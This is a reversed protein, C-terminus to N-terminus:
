ILRYRGFGLTTGHGCHTFRGLWLYSWFPTLDGHLTFSGMLGIM